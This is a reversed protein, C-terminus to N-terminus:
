GGRRQIKHPLPGFYLPTKPTPSSHHIKVITNIDDADEGTEPVKDFYM